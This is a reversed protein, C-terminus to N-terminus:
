RGSKRSEHAFVGPDISLRLPIRADPGPPPFEPIQWDMGLERLGRRILRLDWVLLESLDGSRQAVLKAGQDAFCLPVYSDNHPGSLRAVERGSEIEVIRIAGSGGALALLRSDPSIAGPGHKFQRHERWSPVRWVRTGVNVTSTVLWRGDPSFQSSSSDHLPLDMVKDQTERSWISVATSNPNSDQWHSCTVIWAGDPSVSCTRNDSLPWLPFPNQIPDLPYIAAHSCQPVALLKGDASLAAGSTYANALADMALDTMRRPPGIRWTEASGKSKVIPSHFVGRNGGTGWGHADHFFRPITSDITKCRASALETGTQLDFFSLGMRTCAALVRGSSEEVPSFLPDDASATRSRLARLEAGESLRFLRMRDGEFQPGLTAGDSATSFGPFLSFPTTFLLKGTEANWCRIAGGWDTSLLRSGAFRVQGGLQSHANWAPLYVSGDEANWLSISKDHALAIRRSDPHWALHIEKNLKLAVRIEVPDRGDALDFVRAMGRGCAALKTGDPSLALSFVPAGFRISNTRKGSKLDFLSIRGDHRAAAFSKEAADFAAASTFDGPKVDVMVRPEGDRFSWLLLDYSSSPSKRGHFIALYNGKSSLVPDAFGGEGRHPLAHLIEEGREGRRCLVTRGDKEMRAYKRLSADFSFSQNTGGFTWEQAIELDPLALAAAAEDRLESTTKIAAAKRIAALASFRQGIRGSLREARARELLSQWLQETKAVNAQQADELAEQLRFNVVTGAAAIFVLLSLVASLATALAPNRRTWRRAHELWSTREALIPRDSLFRRLDEAMEEASRYRRDLERDCAKMVITELDRPVRRALKGLSPVGEQSIRQLLRPRDSEDFAPRLALLEFLTLGLGYIDSRPDAVGNFREPALYRLTGVVDGTGTLEAQGASKALGFDTIWITGQQDLLLNAPKIDRHLVRHLHAYHLADAAQLGIRAVSRAFHFDSSSQLEASFSHPSSDARARPQPTEQVAPRDPNTSPQVEATGHWQGSLMGQALSLTQGAAGSPDVDCKSAGDGADRLRKLEVLVQDLSHGQIFQMAFYQIGGFEGIDFVPVINTHHLQAASRAELRFRQLRVEDIGSQFPLVKLAVNRGLSEQRAEYVVGMGGRGIERLVRYDGLRELPRGDFTVSPNRPPKPESEPAGAEEMLVLAPFLERIEDAHEPARTIYETLAPREGRRYRELFEEAMQEIPDRHTGSEVQKEV